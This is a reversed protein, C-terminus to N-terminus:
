EFNLVINKTQTQLISGFIPWMWKENDDPNPYKKDSESNRLDCDGMFICKLQVKRDFFHL